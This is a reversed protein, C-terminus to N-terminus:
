PEEERRSPGRRTRRLRERLASRERPTAFGSAVLLAPLAALLGLKVPIALSLTGSPVLQAALYVGLAAATIRGLRGWELPLPYLRRSIGFGLGAMVAYSLVTAWAAGLMGLRPILMLNAVVNTTASAATIVPYWRTRKKVGIGISTLLFAGHFLYALAVIPIVPAGARFEPRSTFIQLLESAFVAVGTGAVAFALWAWTIVRAFTRPADPERMRSYIFPGWAPEFASLALKVGAGLSYAVGYQGVVARPVYRDLLKRDAVNQVQVLLGHPVKPLGFALAERLLRWDFALRTGRVLVPLLALAIAATAVLDSWLVGEVGHGAMVLAVKLGLNVTHRGTSLLSFLGPRDQIRLLNLPVYILTGLAVDGAALIVWLEPRAGLLVTTLPAATALVLLWWATGVAAAFLAVSGAFRRPDRERHDYYVRFFGGDLGLRFLIKALASFMGLLVVDGYEQASLYLTLLPLLLLSVVNGFVDATGYVVSHSALQRLQAV